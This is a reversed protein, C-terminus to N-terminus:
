AAEDDQYSPRQADRERLFELFDDYSKGAQQWERWEADLEESTKRRPAAKACSLTSGIPVLKSAEHLIRSSHKGAAELEAVRAEAKEARVELIGVTKELVTPKAGVVRLTERIERNRRGENEYARQLNRIAQRYGKRGDRLKRNQKELRAIKRWGQSREEAVAELNARLGRVERGAWESWARACAKWEDLDDGEPEEPPLPCPMAACEEETLVPRGRHMERGPTSFEVPVASSFTRPADAQYPAREAELEA